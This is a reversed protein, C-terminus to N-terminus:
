NRIVVPSGLPVRRVLATADENSARVCGHSAAVGLPGSTGHIAIRDGGLWGSPLKPQTATVALACCGYASAEFRGRVADTVAFRGTPTETGPAGITVTFSRLVRDRLRLEATRASLDVTISYRTWGARLEDPDHRLWGLEGNPLLPTPVGAWEGRRRFVALVRRSGFETRWGITRVVRGGPSARVAIRAGRRLWVVPQGHHFLHFRPRGASATHGRAPPEAARATPAPVTEPEEGSAIAWAAGGASAVLVAVIGIARV